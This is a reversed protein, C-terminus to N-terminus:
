TLIWRLCAEVTPWVVMTKRRRFMERNLPAKLEADEEELVEGAAIFGPGFMDPVM